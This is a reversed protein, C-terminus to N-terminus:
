FWNSHRKNNIYTTTFQDRLAGIMKPSTIPDDLLLNYYVADIKELDNAKVFFHQKSIDDNDDYDVKVSYYEGTVVYLLANGGNSYLISISGNNDIVEPPSLQKYTKLIKLVTPHDAYTDKLKDYEYYYSKLHEKVTVSLLNIIDMHSREGIRFYLDTFVRYVISHMIDTFINIEKSLVNELDQFYGKLNKKDKNKPVYKLIDDQHKQNLKRHKKQLDM